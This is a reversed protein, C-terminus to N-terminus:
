YQVTMGAIKKLMENELRVVKNIYLLMKPWSGSFRVKGRVIERQVKEEGKAIKVWEDYPASLTFEPKGVSTPQGASIRGTSLKVLFTETRDDCKLLISTDIGALTGSLGKDENLSEEAQKFFEETWFGLPM